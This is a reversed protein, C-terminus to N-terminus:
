DRFRKNPSIVQLMKQPTYQIGVSDCIRQQDKFTTKFMYLYKVVMRRLIDQAMKNGSLANYLQAIEHYPYQHYHELKIGVNILNVSTSRMEDYVRKFIEDLNRSGVATSVKNISSYTIAQALMFLFKKAESEVKERDYYGKEEALSCLFKVIYDKDEKFRELFANNTRLAVAYAEICLEIKEQAKISGYYNKLIQGVIELMKLSKNFESITQIESGVEVENSPLETKQVKLEREYEDKQEHVKKRNENVDINEIVLQPIEDLLNNFVDIDSELKLIPVDEFLSKTVNIVQSIIFNDKSLHTLFMLIHAYDSLHLNFCMKSITNRVEEEGIHRALYQGVFYYYIYSYAFVYGEGSRQLILANCIKTKYKTFEFQSSFQLAYEETYLKHFKYWEEKTIVQKENKYFNYALETLYNYMADTEENTVQIKTLAQKILLEYYYGNTSRDLNHPTSSEFAQLIILLYLPFTPVYNQGIVSDVSRELQDKIVILKSEDITSEQGLLIWKEILEARKVHGFEQIEFQRVKHQEHNSLILLLERMNSIEDAMIIIKGFWKAAEEFFLSKFKANLICKHWDDIILVRDKKDLQVYQDNTGEGYIQKTATKILKDIGKIHDGKIKAGEIFIPKKGMNFSHTFLQKSLATKGSEKDGIILLHEDEQLEVLMQDFSVYETVESGSNGRLIIERLDPAVFLDILDLKNKRPHTYPLGINYIFSNFEEVINLTTRHKGKAMLATQLDCWDTDDIEKYLDGNWSYEKIRQTDDELNLHLVKFYSVEPDWREQLVGGEIYQVRKNQWDTLITNTHAHEHGSLIFDSSSELLNRLERRNDPDLWHDPHHIMTVNVDGLTTEMIPRYQKVPFWMKGPQERLTSIWSSNMLNFIIQKEGIKLVARQLLPDDHILEINEWQEHYLSKFNDFNEQVRITDITHISLQESDQNNIAKILVDRTANKGSDGFFDCDHNGPILLFELHQNFEKKIEIQLNDFFPIAFNCYEDEKGSQAIDGSVCCVIYDSSKLESKLARWLANQKDMISNDTDALHIDTFHIVSVTSM